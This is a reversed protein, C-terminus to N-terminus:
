FTDAIVAESTLIMGAVSGANQLSCRLVKVPDIIGSVILDEVRHEIANYGIAGQNAFITNIIEESDVGANKCIQRLPELLPNWSEGEGFKIRLFATGGGPVYGEAIAAKTARVADDFRDLRENMETETAAGVEIVAVGGKLRAIRKEIPEKEEESKAQDLNARLATLLTFLSEKNGEGGIIVTEDKTIIVKKAKGLLQLTVDKKVDVGHTDSFYHGGTIMAIDDMSQRRQEGFDPAKVICSQIRGQLTNMALFALGEQDADECIILMPRGAQMSIELAKQVQTHHTVRKDYLLILPNEFECTGKEKKNVFLHSLWGRGFKYGDALKIETNVGKSSEIDIVGDDGIKAFAQAILDGISSDNNASVTAIQRIREIDGRVPVAMKKLEGVAYEVVKDIGRKIEMPNAGEDIRYMGEAVIARLLVTTTTTGDGAQSVTKQAAEKVALVGVKEFPDEVDFARATTVGDKTIHLPFNRIGYDVVDALSIIVNRGKPGLTVAVADAIKNIGALIKERAEKGYLVKKNM